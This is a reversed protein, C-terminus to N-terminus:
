FFAFFAGTNATSTFPYSLGAGGNYLTTVESATLTKNWAGVEDLKGSLYSAGGTLTHRALRVGNVFTMVGTGDGSAAATGVSTGDIYATITTGDYTYTLMFWTGTTLTYTHQVLQDGVDNKGRSFQIKLTGGDNFYRMFNITKSVNNGQVILHAVNGSTPITTINVWLNMSIVGGDIGLNNSVELYKNTNASGFDAGNNIKGANFDVTNFNTLTNSGQSDVANGSAEDLKWYSILNTLLTSM